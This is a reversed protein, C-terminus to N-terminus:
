KSSLSCHGGKKMFRCCPIVFNLESTGMQGKNLSNQGSVLCRYQVMKPYSNTKTQNKKKKRIIKIKLQIDVLAPAHPPWDLTLIPIGSTLWGSQFQVWAALARLWQAM